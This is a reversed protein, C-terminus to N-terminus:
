LEWPLCLTPFPLQEVGWRTELLDCPLVALGTYLDTLSATLIVFWLPNPATELVAMSEGAKM